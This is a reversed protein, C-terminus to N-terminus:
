HLESPDIEDLEVAADVVFQAQAETRDFLTMHSRTIAAITKAHGCQECTCKSELLDDIAARLGDDGEACLDDLACMLQAM